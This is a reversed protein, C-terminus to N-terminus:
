HRRPQPRAKIVDVLAEVRQMQAYVRAAKDRKEDPFAAGTAYALAVDKMAEMVWPQLFYARLEAFDEPFRDRLPTLFGDPGEEDM